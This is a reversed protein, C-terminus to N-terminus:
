RDHSHRVASGRHLKDRCCNAVHIARKKGCGDGFKGGDHMIRALAGYGLGARRSLIHGLLGYGLNSYVYQAGANRPLEYNSLFEYLLAVTYDTYPNDPDRPAFNAPLRPLGSYHTALDELTIPRANFEPMRVTPPLYQAAPDGLAVKGRQAMDALLLATFVKGVSGIEFVTDAGVRRPDGIALAGHAIVRRGQPTVIGVAIGVASRRQDIREALLLRIESNPLASTSSEPSACVSGIPILLGLALVAACYACAIRELM